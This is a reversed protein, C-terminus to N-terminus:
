PLYWYLKNGSMQIVSGKPMARVVHYAGRLDAVSATLSPASLGFLLSNVAVHSVPIFVWVILPIVGSIIAPCIAIFVYRWKPIPYTTFLAFGHKCYYFEVTVQSPFCLAHLLEHFVTFAVSLLLGSYLYWRNLWVGTTVNLKILFVIVIFALIAGLAIYIDLQSKSNLLRVANDPLSIKPIDNQNKLKGKWILKM